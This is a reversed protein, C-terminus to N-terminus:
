TQAYVVEYTVHLPKESEVVQVVLESLHAAGAPASVRLHFPRPRGTSDLVRDDVGFGGVGTMTELFAVLGHQTGRWRSLAPAAGVLERLQGAGAAFADPDTGAGLFRDLDLWRALLPVFADPCRNPDLHADFDALATESPAHLGEMVELLGALPEGPRVTRQFVEPMLRAIERRKM